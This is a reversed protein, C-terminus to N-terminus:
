RELSGRRSNRREAEKQEQIEFESRIANQFKGLWGGWSDGSPVTGSLRLHRIKERLLARNKLVSDATGLEEILTGPIGSDFLRRLRLYSNTNLGGLSRAEEMERTYPIYYVKATISELMLYSKGSQEDQGHVLVQGEVVPAERWNLVEIPLRIDSVTQGDALLTKQRDKTRQMARLVQEAEPKIQWSGDDKSEALQLNQLQMLRAIVRSNQKQEGPSEPQFLFGEDSLESNRLLTRDLATFRLEKIERREAEAADL